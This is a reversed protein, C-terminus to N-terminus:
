RGESSARPKLMERSGKEIRIRSSFRRRRSSPSPHKDAIFPSSPQSHRKAAIRQCRQTFVSRKKLSFPFNKFVILSPISQIGFQQALEPEEDVNVKAVVVKNGAENAVAELEPAVMRCPGCWPAWFDVLVPRSPDKVTESFDSKTLKIINESM